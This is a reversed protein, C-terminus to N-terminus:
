VINSLTHLYIEGRQWVYLEPSGPMHAFHMPSNAPGYQVSHAYPEYLEPYTQVGQLYSPQALQVKNLHM